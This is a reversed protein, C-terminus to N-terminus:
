QFSLSELFNRLVNNSIRAVNNSYYNHSLSGTWAVSGVSFVRAGSPRQFYVMDARVEHSDPSRALGEEKGGFFSRALNESSAVVLADAPTGLSPDARDIEFGVAGGQNLGFDGIIEDPGVGDFIFEVRKDFSAPTRRFAGARDIFGLGSFGVGSLRQPPRGASRWTGGRVGDSSHMLEGPEAEATGSGYGRRVEAIYPRAPDLSTVWYLGNGSLFMLRTDRKLFRELRDLMRTTWYEHHGACVVFRYKELPDESLLHLDHDCIVDYEQREHELWHVTYLDAMALHSCKQSFTESIDNPSFYYQPDLTSIPKRLSMHYVSTGDSHTGYLSPGYRREHDPRGRNGYAQWTLTPVIYLIPAPKQGNARVIFTQAWHEDGARLHSAYIGSRADPPVRLTVGPRWEADALDDDHFHVADYQQTDASYVNDNPGGFLHGTVGRTPGNILKGHDGHGSIDVVRDSQIYRSFDWEGVCTQGGFSRQGFQLQYLGIDDMYALVLVLRGIKGNYANRASRGNVEAALWIQGDTIANAASRTVDVPLNCRIVAPGLSGRQGAFVGLLQQTSDFTLGVFHWRWPYLQRELALATAEVQGVVRWREDIRLHIPGWALVCQPRPFPSTPCIWCAFTFSAPVACPAPIVGYSGLRLEQVCGPHPGPSAWHVREEMHGPGRPNPDGHLQRAVSVSYSPHDTSVMLDLMEGPAVSIKNAYAEIM